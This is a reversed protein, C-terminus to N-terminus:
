EYKIGCGQQKTEATEPTEGALVAEVADRLYNKQVDDPQLPSDDMLGMYVVKRDEDLVFFHPTVQAGYDRAVQQTPDYLYPFNFGKQEAREKMKGLKDGEVNNVNIAVLQVGKDKYEEQFEIMRDECAIAVPCSNCTFVAVVVKANDFDALAHNEDDTGVIGGWAPAADGVSLVKNWRGAFSAPVLVAVVLAAVTLRLAHRFLM